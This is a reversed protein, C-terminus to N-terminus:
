NAYKKIKQNIRYIEQGITNKSCNFTDAIKQQPVGQLYLSYKELLKNNTSGYRNIFIKDFNKVKRKLFEINDIIVTNRVKKIKQPKTITAYRISEVDKLKNLIKLFFYHKKNFKKLVENKTYGVMMYHIALREELTLKKMYFNYDPNEYYYKFVEPNQAHYSEFIYNSADTDQYHNTFQTVKFSKLKTRNYYAWYTCNKMIQTFKGLTMPEKPKNFYYSHVYLFVEQYLDKADALDRDWSTSTKKITLNVCYEFIIPKLDLFDQITYNTVQEKM